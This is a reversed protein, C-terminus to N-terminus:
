TLPELGSTHSERPQTQPVTNHVQVVPEPANQAREATTNGDGKDGCAALILMGLAVRLLRMDSRTHHLMSLRM